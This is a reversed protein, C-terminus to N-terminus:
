GQYKVGDEVVVTIRDDLNYKKVLNKMVNARNINIEVGIIKVQKLSDAIYM